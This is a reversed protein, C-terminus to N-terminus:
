WCFGVGFQPGATLASLPILLFRCSLSSHGDYHLTPQTTASTCVAEPAETKSVAGNRKLCKRTVWESKACATHCTLSLDHVKPLPLIYKSATAWALCLCLEITTAREILASPLHFMIDNLRGLPFLIRFATNRFRLGHQTLM